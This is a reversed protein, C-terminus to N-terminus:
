DGVTSARAVLTVPIKHIVNEGRGNELRDILQEVAMQGMRFTPVRISSIAPRAQRAFFSDDHGIVALEEPVRVGCEMATNIVGLAIRDNGTFVASLKKEARRLHHFGMAGFELSYEGSLVLERRVPIGAETLARCYGLYRNESNQYSLPGALCGIHRHGLELLHRTALYGANVDDTVISDIGDIDSATEIAVFPVHRPGNLLAHIEENWSGDANRTLIGSQSVLVIGDVRYEALARLIMEETELNHRAEFTSVIYGHQLAADQLGRLISGYYVISYDPIVVGLIRSRNSRLSSAAVDRRYGLEEVVALIRAKKEESVKRKGSFVNSVTAVSVGAAKAVDQMTISM